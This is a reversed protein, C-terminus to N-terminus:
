PVFCNIGLRNGPAIDPGDFSTPLTTAFGLQIKESGMESEVVSSSPSDNGVAHISRM